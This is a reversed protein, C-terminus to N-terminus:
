NNTKGIDKIKKRIVLINMGSILAFLLIGASIAPLLSAKEFSPWLQAIVQFYLGRLSLMILISFLLTCSNLSIILWGYPRAIQSSHYGLLLLNRLKDSNKQLLLFISLMLIYLALGSILLGIGAVLSVALDLFWATKGADLKGDETEYGKRQFFQAMERDTPNAIEAILRSPSHNKDGAFRNNAWRMFKEPVLITNLRDSFGAIKGSFHETAGQGRLRVDLNIAEAM